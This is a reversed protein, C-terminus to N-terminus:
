NCYQAAEIVECSARQRTRQMLYFTALRVQINPLKTPRIFQM